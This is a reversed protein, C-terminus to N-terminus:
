VHARGIKDGTDFGQNVSWVGLFINRDKFTNVAKKSLSCIQNFFTPQTSQPGYHISNVEMPLANSPQGIIITKGAPIKKIMNPILNYIYNVDKQDVFAGGSFSCKGNVDVGHNPNNYEQLFFVDIQSM